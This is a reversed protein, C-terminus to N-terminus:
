RVEFLPVLQFGEFLPSELKFTFENAKSPVFRKAPVSAPTKTVVSKPVLQVDADFPNGEETTSAKANFPALRKAAM